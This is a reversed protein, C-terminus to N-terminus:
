QYHQQKKRIKQNTVRTLTSLFLVKTLGIEDNEKVFWNDHNKNGNNNVSNSIVVLFTNM